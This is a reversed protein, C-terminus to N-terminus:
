RFRPGATARSRPAGSAPLSPQDCMEAVLLELAAEPEIRGTKSWHDLEVLRDHLRLLAEREFRGAQSMAKRIVFPKQGMESGIQEAPIRRAALEAVGLLIRVQRGVMFLLYTAAAGDDFLDHLLKLAPALRRAALVDVFDFISSESGDPVLLQVEATGITGNPGVYAALKNLENLLARGDKGAYEVLTEGAQPDLRVALRRAREHLWRQLAVGERPQFERIANHQKFYNFLSSPRDIEAGEVFILDTTPPVQALYDRIEDREKGAKLHKVAGEVIVLRSEALFPMAECAAALAPLKLRRGDLVATNLDAFDAPIRAKLEAIAEDLQLDDAGFYLAIM